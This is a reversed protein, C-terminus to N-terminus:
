HGYGLGLGLGGHVFGFRFEHHRTLVAWLGIPKPLRPVWGPFVNVALLNEAPSMTVSWLLSNNRDYYVGAGLAMSITEHGTADVDRVETDGGLGVSVHHEQDLRRSIGFQAGLGGRVFLRTRERGIPIKLTWYQGNNQLQENPLTLAAQNSWDAMQLTRAFFRTPLDWQFLLLAATDFFLLDSVTPAAYSQINPMESVENMISAAYTNLMAMVRPLPVGHARYWEDLLRMTMGGGLLHETYNALWNLEYFEFSLPLLEIRTFRGWGGFREVAEGPYQFAGRIGYHFTSKYSFDFIERSSTRLQFIDYGKNWMVTLPGNYADSGYGYGHYLMRSTDGVSKSWRGEFRPAAISDQSTATRAFGILLAFCLAPVRRDM